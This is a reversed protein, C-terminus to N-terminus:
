GERQMTCNKDANHLWSNVQYEYTNLGKCLTGKLLDGFGNIELVYHKDFRTSVAIDVSLQYSKPFLKAVKKCTKLLEGWNDAGMREKLKHASDRQNLLHLNTIPSKSSRLIIHAPEGNVMLVRLDVIRNDIGAKPVWREVIVGQSCLANILCAIAEKTTYKHIRRSSFLQCGTKAHLLEVTTQAQFCNKSKELAVVGMGSYGHNLKVFVRSWGQKNMQDELEEFSTIGPMAAPVPIGHRSLMAHCCSKDFFLAIDDTNSYFHCHDFLTNIRELQYCFGLYWQRPHLLLGRPPEQLDQTAVFPSGEAQAAKQGHRLFLKYMDWSRGPSEIRIIRPQSPPPRFNKTIRAYSVEEAESQGYKSLAKQFFDIRKEGPVGIITFEPLLSSSQMPLIAIFKGTTKM